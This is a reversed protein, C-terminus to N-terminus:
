IVPLDRGHNYPTHCSVAKHARAIHLHLQFPELVCLGQGTNYLQRCIFMWAGLVQPTPTASPVLSLSDVVFQAIVHAATSRYM